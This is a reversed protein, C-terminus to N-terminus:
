ARAARVKHLDGARLQARAEGHRITQSRIQASADGVCPRGGEEEEPTAWLRPFLLLSPACTDPLPTARLSRLLGPATSSDATSFTPAALGPSTSQGHDQVHGQAPRGPSPDEHEWLQLSKPATLLGYEREERSDQTHPVTERPTLLGWPLDVKSLLHIFVGILLFPRKGSEPHAVPFEM